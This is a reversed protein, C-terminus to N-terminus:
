HQWRNRTKGTTEVAYEVAKKKEIDDKSTNKNVKYCNFKENLKKNIRSGLSQQGSRFRPRKKQKRM